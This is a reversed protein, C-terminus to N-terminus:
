KILASNDPIISNIERELNKDIKYKNDRHSKEWTTKQPLGSIREMLEILKPVTYNFINPSTDAEKYNSFFGIMKKVEEETVEIAKIETEALTNNCIVKLFNRFGSYIKDCKDKTFSIEFYKIFVKDAVDFPLNIKLKSNISNKEMEFRLYKDKKKEQNEDLALKESNGIFEDVILAFMDNATLIEESWEDSYFKYRLDSFESVGLREFTENLCDKIIKFIYNIDNEIHKSKRIEEVIIKIWQNQNFLFPSIGLLNPDNLFLIRESEVHFTTSQIGYCNKIKEIVSEIENHILFSNHILELKIEDTVTLSNIYDMLINNEIAFHFFRDILNYKISDLIIRNVKLQFNERIKNISSKM